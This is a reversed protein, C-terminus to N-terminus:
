PSDTLLRRSNILIESTRRMLFPFRHPMGPRLLSSRQQLFSCVRQVLPILVHLVFRSHADGVWLDRQQMSPGRIGIALGPFFPPQFYSAERVLASSSQGSNLRRNSLGHGAGDCGHGQFSLVTRTGDGCIVARRPPQFLTRNDETRVHVRERHDDPSRSSSCCRRVATSRRANDVSFHGCTFGCPM